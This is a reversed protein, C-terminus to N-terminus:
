CRTPAYISGISCWYSPVAVTFLGGFVADNSGAFQLDNSPGRFGGTDELETSIEASDATEDSNEDTADNMCGSQTRGNGEVGPGFRQLLIALVGTLVEGAM